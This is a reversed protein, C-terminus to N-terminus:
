WRVQFAKLGFSLPVPSPNAVLITVMQNNDSSLLVAEGDPDIGNGLGIISGSENLVALNLDKKSTTNVFFIYDTLATLEYQFELATPSQPSGPGIRGRKAFLQHTKQMIKKPDTPFVDRLHIVRNAYKDDLLPHLKSVPTAYYRQHGRAAATNIGIVLEGKYLPGGSNGPAIAATHVLQHIENQREERQIQMIKGDTVSLGECLGNGAALVEDRVEVRDLDGLAVTSFSDASRIKLVAIDHAPDYVKLHAVDYKAGGDFIAEGGLARQAVHYNTVITGDSGVLFGSGCWQRRVLEEGNGTFNGKANRQVGSGFGFGVMRLSVVTRRLEENSPFESYVQPSVLVISLTIISVYLMGAGLKRTNM